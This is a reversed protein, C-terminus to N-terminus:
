EREGRHPCGFKRKLNAVVPGQVVVGADELLLGTLTHQRDVVLADAVLL